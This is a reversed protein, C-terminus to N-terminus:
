VDYLIFFLPGVQVGYAGASLGLTSFSYHTETVRTVERVVVAGNQSIRINYYQIMGNPEAPPEWTVIASVKNVQVSAMTITSPVTFGPAPSLPYLLSYLNLKHTKLKRTDTLLMAM